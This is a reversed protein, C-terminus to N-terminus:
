GQFARNGLISSGIRLHTAGYKLATAFDGSMGASIWNAEPFSSQIQSAFDQLRAFAMDDDGALPAVGMVGQLRLGESNSIMEALIMLESPLAGGRNETPAPDLNAQILVGLPVERNTVAKTLATVLDIRDVSHVVDAWAAVSKAKNTQLQGIAHWTLNKATVEDHKPKAEQDRNEGVDTVGLQALLDVDTAPWTKTVAILTVDDRNRNAAVCAQSIESEVDQLNAQLEQMRDM